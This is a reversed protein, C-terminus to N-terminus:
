LVLIHPTLNGEDPTSGFDVWKMKHNRILLIILLSM